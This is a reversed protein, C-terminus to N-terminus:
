FRRISPISGISFNHMNKIEKARKDENLDLDAMFAKYMAQNNAMTFSLGLSVEVILREEKELIIWVGNGKYNYLGDVLIVLKTTKEEPSTNMEAVFDILMHVTLAKKAEFKIYFESL